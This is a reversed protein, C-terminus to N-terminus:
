PERKAPSLAPVPTIGAAHTPAHTELGEEGLHPPQAMLHLMYYTGMAYVVVYVVAFAVLSFTLAPAALPSASDVTRLLHYVTYPQRGAETVTWGAIVAVFGAPGM